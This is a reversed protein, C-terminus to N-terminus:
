PQPTEAESPYLRPLNPLGCSRAHLQGRGRGLEGSVSDEPWPWESCSFCVDGAAATCHLIPGSSPAIHMSNGPTVGGKLLPGARAPGGVEEPYPPRTAKLGSSTGHSINCQMYHLANHRPPMLTHTVTLDGEAWAPSRVPGALPVAAWAPTWTYLAAASM